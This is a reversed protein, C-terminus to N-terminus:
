YRFRALQCPVETRRLVHAVSIVVLAPRACCQAGHPPPALRRSDGASPGVPSGVPFGPSCPLDPLDLHVEIVAFVQPGSLSQLLLKTVHKSDKANLPSSISKLETSLLYQTSAHKRHTVHRPSFRAKNPSKASLPDICTRRHDASLFESLFYKRVTFTSFLNM